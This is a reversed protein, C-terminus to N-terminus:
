NKRVEANEVRPFTGITGNGYSSILVNRFPYVDPTNEGSTSPNKAM